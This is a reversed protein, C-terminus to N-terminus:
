SNFSKLKTVNCEHTILKEQFNFIYQVKFRVMLLGEVLVIVERLLVSNERFETLVVM